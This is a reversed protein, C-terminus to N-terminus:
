VTSNLTNFQLVYPIDCTLNKTNADLPKTELHSAHVNQPFINSGLLVKVEFSQSFVRM